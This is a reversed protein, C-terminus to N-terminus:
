RAPVPSLRVRITRPSPDEYAIGRPFEDALRITRGRYGPAKVALLYSFSTMPSGYSFVVNGRVRGDKGLVTNASYSHVLRARGGVDTIRKWTPGPPDFQGSEEDIGVEAGSIANGTAIDSVVLDFTVDRWGPTVPPASLRQEVLFTVWCLLGGGAVLAAVWAARIARSRRSAPVRPAISRLRADIRDRIARLM